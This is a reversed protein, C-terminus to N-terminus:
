KKLAKEWKNIAEFGLKNATIYDKKLIEPDKTFRKTQFDDPPNIEVINIDNPPNRIFNVSEKYIEPRKKITNILQPYNKFLIKHLFLNKVPKIEYKKPRSRIVMINCANRIYAEKIPIPNSIGGDTVNINNINIFNRYLVPIASTAKLYDELTNKSPELFFSEGNEINTFGIYYKIKKSFIKDLDLRIERITKGWLWDLDIYHKGLIFKKISIFESNLSYETFIKYNRMYMEALYAAINSAGISVGIFMDFPNFKEKIFTDLIGASFIGRMAGGEVVLANLKKLLMKNNGKYFFM